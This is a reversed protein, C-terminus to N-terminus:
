PNIYVSEEYAGNKVSGRFKSYSFTTGDDTTQGNEDLLRVFYIRDIAMQNSRGSLYLTYVEGTKFVYVPEKFDRSQPELKVSRGWAPAADGSSAFLKNYEKLDELNAGYYVTGGAEQQFEANAEFDGEIKTWADNNRDGAFKEVNAAETEPDYTHNEFARWIMAYTGPLTIRFTYKIAGDAVKSFSDNGTYELYGEGRYDDLYGEFPIDTGGSSHFLGVKGPNTNNRLAWQTDTYDANEAELVLLGGEEESYPVTIVTEAENEPTDGVDTTDDKSCSKLFLALLPTLIPLVRAPRLKLYTM